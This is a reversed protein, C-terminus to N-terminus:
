KAQKVPMRRRRLLVLAALGLAALSTPEPVDSTFNYVAPGVPAPVGGPQNPTPTYGFVGNVGNEPGMEELTITLPQRFTPIGVDALDAPETSTEPRESYVILLPGTAATNTWRLLDSPGANPNTVEFVNADGQTFAVGATPPLSYILPKLGNTPDVPDTQNGLSNLPVTIGNPTVISGKGNEDFNVIFTARASRLAIFSSAVCGLLASTRMAKRSLMPPDKGLFSPQNTFQDTEKFQIVPARM